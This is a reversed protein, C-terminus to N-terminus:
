GVGCYEGVTAPSGEFMISSTATTSEVLLLIWREFLSGRQPTRVVNNTAGGGLMSRTYAVM